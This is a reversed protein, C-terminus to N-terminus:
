EDLGTGEVYRGVASGRRLPFGPPRILWVTVANTVGNCDFSKLM